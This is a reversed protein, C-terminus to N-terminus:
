SPTQLYFKELEPHTPVFGPGPAGDSAACDVLDSTAALGPSRKGARNASRCAQRKKVERCGRCSTGM